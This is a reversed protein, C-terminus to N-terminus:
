KTLEERLYREFNNAGKLFFHRGKTGPHKVKKVPHKAKYWYLAKKNKPRIIHPATGLEVYKAYEVNTGIVFSDGREEMVISARLRGNDVPCNMKIDRLVKLIARGLKNKIDKDLVM